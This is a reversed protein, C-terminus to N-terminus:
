KKVRVAAVRGGATTGAGQASLTSPPVRGSRPPLSGFSIWTRVPVGPETERRLERVMFRTSSRVAGRTVNGGNRCGGALELGRKGENKTCVFKANLAPGLEHYAFGKGWSGSQKSKCRLSNQDM